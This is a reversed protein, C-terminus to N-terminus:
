AEGATPAGSPPQFPNERHAQAARVAQCRECYPRNCLLALPDGAVLEQVKPILKALPVAQILAAGAQVRRVVPEIHPAIEPFGDSCGPFNRCEVVGFPTLAWRVFQKRGALMEGYHISTNVAHDVGLLLVWGKAQYLWAIPALPAELSQAQLAADTNVGAFSLIPHGSRRARPHCRLAEPVVGMLRDAPMDPRYFEAMLNRQQATGYEIGNDPPGSEPIVMTKYTFTPMMLAPFVSLLAGVLASAGGQVRGFASLSAHAVVPRLPDIKLRRLATVLERYGVM